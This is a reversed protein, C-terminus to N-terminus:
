KRSGACIIMTRFLGPLLEHLKWPTRAAVAITLDPWVSNAAVIMAETPETLAVILEDLTDEADARSMTCMAGPGVLICILKERM